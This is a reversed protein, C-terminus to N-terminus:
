NLNGNFTGTVPADPTVLGGTYVIVADRVYTDISTAMRDAYEDDANETRSRMDVLIQKIDNKLRIKDLAM